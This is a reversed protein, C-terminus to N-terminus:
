EEEHGFSKDSNAWGKDWDKDNEPVDILEVDTKSCSMDGCIEAENCLHSIIGTNEGPRDTSWFVMTTKYLKM